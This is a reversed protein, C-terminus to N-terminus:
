IIYLLIEQGVHKRNKIMKNKPKVKIKVPFILLSSVSQFMVNINIINEKNEVESQVIVHFIKTTIKVYSSIHTGLQSTVM